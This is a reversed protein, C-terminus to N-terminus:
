RAGSDCAIDIRTQRGDTVTVETRPCRPLLGADVEIRYAGAAAEIAFGGQPSTTASGATGGSGDVLLVRVGPLPEICDQDLRQPGHCAPSVTVRGTVTGRGAGNAAVSCLAAALVITWRVAGMSEM